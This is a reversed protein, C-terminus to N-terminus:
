LFSNNYFWFGLWGGLAAFIWVAVGYTWRLSKDKEIESNSRRRLLVNITGLGVAFGMMFGFFSFIYVMM